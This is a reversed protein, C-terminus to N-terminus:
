DKLERLANIHFQLRDLELVFRHFKRKLYVIGFVGPLAVLLGLQTTLLAKSIGESVSTTTSGSLGTFTDVMGAVTGLLGLLPMSKIMANLLNFEKELDLIEASSAENYRMELQHKEKVGPSLVYRIIRPVIGRQKSLWSKISQKSEGAIIKETIEHEFKSTKFSSVNLKFYMSLLWFWSCISLLLLPLTFWGAASWFDIIQTIPNM